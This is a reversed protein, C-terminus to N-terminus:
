NRNIPLSYRGERCSQLKKQNSPKKLTCHDKSFDDIIRTCRNHLKSRNNEYYHFIISSLLKKWTSYILVELDLMPAVHIKQCKEDIM